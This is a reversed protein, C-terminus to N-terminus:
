MSSLHLPESLTEVALSNERAFKRIRGHFNHFLVVRCGLAQLGRVARALSQSDSHLTWVTTDVEDIRQWRSAAGLESGLDDRGIALVVANQPGIGNRVDEPTLFWFTRNSPYADIQDSWFLWRSEGWSSMSTGYQGLVFPDLENVSRRIFAAHILEFLHRASGSVVFSATHRHKSKQIEHFIDLYAYLLHEGSDALVVIQESKCQTLSWATSVKSAGASRGAMTGDLLVTVARPRQALCLEKFKEVFSHRSTELCIDGTFIVSSKADSVIWGVSGPMHPVAFTEAHLEPGLMIRNGTKVMVVRKGVVSPDLHGRSVLMAATVPSMLAPIDGCRGAVFGGAHDAHAHSILVAADAAAAEIRDPFGSDLLLAGGSTTRLRIACGDEPQAGAEVSHINGHTPQLIRSPAGALRGREKVVSGLRGGQPLPYWGSADAIVQAKSYLEDRLAPDGLTWCVAIRYRFRDSQHVFDVFRIHQIGNIRSELLGNIIRITEQPSKPAIAVTKLVQKARFRPGFWPKATLEFTARVDGQGDIPEPM